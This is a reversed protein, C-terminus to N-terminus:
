SAEEPEVELAVDAHYGLQRRMALHDDSLLYGVFASGRAQTLQQSRRLLDLGPRPDGCGLVGGRDEARLLSAELDRVEFGDITAAFTRAVEALSGVDKPLLRRVTAAYDQDYGELEPVEVGAAECLGTLLALIRAPGAGEVIFDGGLVLRVLARGIADRASPSYPAANVRRGVLLTPSGRRLAVVGEISPDVVLRPLPVGLAQAISKTVLVAAATQPLPRTQDLDVGPTPAGPVLALLPVGELLLDIAASCPLDGLIYDLPRGEQAAPLPWPEPALVDCGRGDPIREPASIELVSTALYVGDSEGLNSFLRLVGLVPRPDIAGSMSPAAPDAVGQTRLWARYQALAAMLTAHAEDRRDLKELLRHLETIADLDTPDHLLLQQMLEVAVQPQALPGRHLDALARLSRVRQEGDGLDILHQLAEVRQTTLGVEAALRDASLLAHRPHFGGRGAALFSSVAESPRGAKECADAIFYHLAATREPSSERELAVRLTEVVDDWRELRTYLAALEALTSADPEVAGPLPPLHRRVQDVAALPGDTEAIVRAAERLDRARLKGETKLADLRATMAAALSPAFARGHGELTRVVGRFALDDSPSAHLAASFLRWADRNPQGRTGRRLALTGARCYAAMRHAAKSQTAALRELTTVAADLNADGGLRELLRARGHLAPTYDPYLALAEDERQLAGTLDGRRELLDAAIHAFAAQEVPHSSGSASRQAATLTDAAGQSAHEQRRARIRLRGRSALAHGPDADLIRAYEADADTLNGAHEHARAVQYRLALLAPANPELDHLLAKVAAERAGAERSPRGAARAARALRQQTVFDDPRAEAVAGLYQVAVVARPTLEALQLALAARDAAGRESTLGAEAFAQLERSRGLSEYLSLLLTRAVGLQPWLDLARVLDRIASEADGLRTARVQALRHLLVARTRPGAVAAVHQELVRAHDAWRALRATLTESAHLAPLHRPWQELLAELELLASEPQELENALLNAIELRLAVQRGRDNAYMLRKRLLMLLALHDGEERLVAELKVLSPEYDDICGLSDEFYGRAKARDGQELALEGARHFLRARRGPSLTLKIEQETVRLVDTARGARSLQRALLQVSALHEPREQLLPVLYKIAASPDRDAAHIQALVSLLFIKRGQTKARSLEDAYHRALAEKDGVAHLVRELRDRAPRFDAAIAIADEYAKRAGDLAGLREELVQGARLHAQAAEAPTAGERVLAASLQLLEVLQAWASQGILYRAAEEVAPIHNPFLRIAKRMAALGETPRELRALALRGARYFLEARQAPDADGLARAQALCAELAVEYRASSMSLEELSRWLSINRPQERAAAHLISVAAARERHERLVLSVRVLPMARQGAPRTDADAEFARLMLDPDGSLEAIRVLDAITGVHGPAQELTTLLIDGALALDGGHRAELLALDRLVAALWGREQLIDAQQELNAILSHIDGRALSIREISRLVALDDPTAKLAAEYCQLAALLDRFHGEVLQGRERYLAAAERPHRTARIEQDLHLVAARVDGRRSHLHYLARIAPRLDPVAELALGLRRIAEGEDQRLLAWRATVYALAARLQRQDGPTRTLADLVQAETQPSVQM